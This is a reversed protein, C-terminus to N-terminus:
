FSFTVALGKTDKSIIPSVALGRYFATGPRAYVADYKKIAFDIAAGVGAGIGAGVPLAVLGTYFACESDNECASRTVIAGGAVGAALGILMGNWWVDRRRHTIERITSEALERRTGDITIAIARDRIEAFRAKFTAGKDDTIQLTEGERLGGRSRLEELSAAPSQNQALAPLSVLPILLLACLSFKSIKNPSM